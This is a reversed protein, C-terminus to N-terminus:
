KPRVAEWATRAADPSMNCRLRYCRIDKLLEMILDLHRRMRDETEPYFTALLMGPLMERMGAPQIDNKEGRELMCIAQIPVIQKGGWGEKGKWPSGCVKWVGHIKRVVPKDGCIVDCEKGVSHMYKMWLLIHTSKGTGPPATFLYGRGDVEVAAAHFIMGQYEELAESIDAILENLSRQFPPFQQATCFHRYEKPPFAPLYVRGRGDSTRDNELDRGSKSIRNEQIVVKREDETELFDSCIRELRPDQNELHFSIGALQINM